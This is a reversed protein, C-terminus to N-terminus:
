TFQTSAIQSSLVSSNFAANQSLAFPPISVDGYNSIDCVLVEAVLAMKQFAYIIEFYTKIKLLLVTRIPGQLQDFRFPYNYWPLLEKM